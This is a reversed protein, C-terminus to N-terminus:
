NRSLEKLRFLKHFEYFLWFLLWDMLYSCGHNWWKNHIMHGSHIHIWEIGIALTTWIFWYLLMNRVTKHKPLLQIFLYTVVIYTGLDDSVEAFIINGNRYEWLKFGEAIVVDTILGLYGAFISVPFLERWRKKDAFILWVIWVLIFRIYFFM